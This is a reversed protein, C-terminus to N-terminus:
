APEPSPAIADPLAADIEKAGAGTYSALALLALDRTLQWRGTSLWPLVSAWNERLVSNMGSRAFLDCLSHRFQDATKAGAFALRWKDFEGTMRNKMTGTKGKNESAIAGFRRRLSEHVAHVVASEGQDQWAIKETMAKLGEKEFFLKLRLPKKSVPDLKTMLNVFGRYWPQGRALNDAVMPRVISDSWFHETRQTEVKNKGRGVSEKRVVTAVRPRLEQMAVEFQRLCVEDGPPVMLADVRSKQQSAWSTPRFTVAHCGPLNFQTAVKSLRLRLQAQLAADGASAIRCQRSSTPTMEPRLVCFDKLDAVEPVVLVGSGRNM